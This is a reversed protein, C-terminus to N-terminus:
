AVIGINDNIVEDLKSGLLVIWLPLPEIFKWKNFISKHMEFTLTTNEKSVTVLIKDNESTIMRSFSFPVAAGEINIDLNFYNLLFHNLSYSNLM